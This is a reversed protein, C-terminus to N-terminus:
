HTRNLWVALRPGSICTECVVPESRCTTITTCRPQGSRERDQNSGTMKRRVLRHICVVFAQRTEPFLLKRKSVLITSSSFHVWYKLLQFFVNYQWKWVENFWLVMEFLASTILFTETTAFWCDNTLILHWLPKRLLSSHHQTCTFVAM